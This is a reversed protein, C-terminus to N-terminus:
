LVLLTDADGIDQQRLFCRVLYLDIVNQRTFPMEM